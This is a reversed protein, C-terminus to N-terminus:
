IDRLFSQTWFPASVVPSEAETAGLGAAGCECGAHTRVCERESAGGSGDDLDLQDTNGWHAADVTHVQSFSHLLGLVEGVVQPGVAGALPGSASPFVSVVGSVRLQKRLQCAVKAEM